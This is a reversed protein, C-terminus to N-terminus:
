ETKEFTYSLGYDDEWRMYNSNIDKITYVKPVAQNGIAGTSVHTLVDEDLSWSFTLNSEEETIDQSADWYVGTHDARYRWYEQSGSMIWLGTLQSDSVHLHNDKGCAAFLIFTLLCAFLRNKMM